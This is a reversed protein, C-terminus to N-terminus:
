EAIADQVIKELKINYERDLILKVQGQEIMAKEEKELIAPSFYDLLKEAWEFPITKIFDALVIEQLAGTPCNYVCGKNKYDACGDCKWIEKKRNKGKEALHNQEPLFNGEYNIKLTHDKTALMSIAGFPCTRSCRGCGSCIEKPQTYRHNTKTMGEIKCCEICVPDVCNKCSTPVRITGIEFGHRVFRSNGHRRDCAKVCNDCDICKNLDYILFTKYIDM